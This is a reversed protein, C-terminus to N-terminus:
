SIKFLNRIDKEYNEKLTEIGRSAKIKFSCYDINIRNTIILFRQVIIDIRKSQFLPLNHNIRRTIIKM